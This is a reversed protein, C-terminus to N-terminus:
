ENEESKATKLWLEKFKNFEKNFLFSIGTVIVQGDIVSQFENKRFGKLRYRRDKTLAYEINVNGIVPTKDNNKNTNEIEFGSGVQVTLRDDFLRKQASVNLETNNQEGDTTYDTYSDLEFGLEIGSNGVLRNSYNNLQNSLVKNVNDRAISLSGGSSGDNKSSPFFQNLVLISFVQKNLEEENNNNLQQVQTFVQGGLAGRDDKPIDLSFNIEPQLLEGGLNLYVWFPMKKRYQNITNKDLGSTVSAMLGSASTEVKYIAKIDMKAQLLDGQWLISSGKEIDFKRKVLGYLSAEYSGDNVEYKGSLTTRGNPNLSFNLNAEGSVLLHDGTNKDVVVNLVASKDVKLITELDIGKLTETTELMTGDATLISNKISKDVFVVVGEREIAEVKSEPVIYTFNTNKNVKLAGTIKPIDANGKIAVDADLFLKGYYLDNDKETSNLVQLNKTKLTLDFDPNSLTKTNIKGNLVFPNKDTDLITFQDLTVGADNIQIAEQPLVFQTNFSNVKLKAEHFLLNGKYKPAEVSGNMDFEASIYGSTKSIYDKTFSEIKSLGLKKFDVKLNLPSTTNNNNYSGDITLDIQDNDKLTLELDFDRNNNSHADLHMTGLANDFVKFQEMSIDAKLIQRDNKQLLTLNGALIGNAIDQSPNLFSFLTAIKFNQFGIDFEQEEAETTFAKFKLVQQNRRLAVDTAIIKSPHITVLNSAPIQWSVRNLILTSPDIHVQLEQEEKQLESHLEIVKKEAAISSIDVHIKDGIKQTQVALNQIDVPEYHINQINLDAKANDMVLNVQSISSGKYNLYPINFKGTFQEADSNFDLNFTIPDFQSLGQLFVENLIPDQTITFDIHANVPSSLSDKKLTSTTFLQKLHQNLAAITEKPHANAKAKLNMFGGTLNVRTSDQNAKAFLKIPQVPINEDNFFLLADGIDTNFQFVEANGKFNAKLTAKAKINKSTLQLKQLDVGKINITTNLKSTLSDMDVLTQTEFDLADDIYKTNVTGKGNKIDTQLELPKYNHTKYILENFVTSIKANLDQTSSGNVAIQTKFDILGLEPQNLFKGLQLQSVNINGTFGKKIKNLISGDIDISGKPTKVLTKTNINQITGITTSSIQLQEPIRVGLSDQAIWKQIAARNTKFKLNPIDFALADPQIIQKLKGNFELQTTKGWELFFKAISLNELSGNASLEGKIPATALTKVSPNQKISDNFFYADQVDLAVKSIAVSFNSKEPKNIFTAVSSFNVDARGYLYSRNTKLVLDDLIIKQDDVKTDVGFQKVSFGSQEKFALQNLRFAFEKNKLVLKELLLESDSIVIKQPNFSNKQFPMTGTQIAFDNNKLAINQIDVKWLPWEFAKKTNTEVSKDVTNPTIAKWEVKSNKLGLDAVNIVQEKQDFFANEVMFEELSLQLFQEDVTNQYDAQIHQWDLANITIKPTSNRNTNETTEKFAKTQIYQVALDDLKVKKIPIELTTIDFKNGFQMQFQKLKLAAEVGMVQDDFILNFDKFDVKGIKIEPGDTAITDKPETPTAGIFADIIYNFNYGKISDQQDIRATLGDWFVSKIKIKNQTIMPLFETSIELKKSFVLTDKQQDEVYLNEIIIDGSFGLYLKGIDFPTDIKQSVFQSVKNKIINQGLASRVFLVLAVFFLLLLLLAWKFFHAIILIIHKSKKSM